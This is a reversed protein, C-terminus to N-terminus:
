PTSCKKFYEEGKDTRDLCFHGEYDKEVFVLGARKMKSITGDRSYERIDEDDLPLAWSSIANLVALYKTNAEM